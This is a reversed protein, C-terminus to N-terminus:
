RTGPAPLSAELTAEADAARRASSAALVDLAAVVTGARFYREVDGLAAYISYEDLPAGRRADMAFRADAREARMTSLISEVAREGLYNADVSARIGTVGAAAAALIRATGGPDFAATGALALVLTDALTNYLASGRYLRQEFAAFHYDVLWLLEDIIRNRELDTAVADFVAVDDYREELAHRLADRHGAPSPALLGPTRCGLAMVVLLIM